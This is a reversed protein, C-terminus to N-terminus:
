WGPRQSQSQSSPQYRQYGRDQSPAPAEQLARLQDRWSLAPPHSRPSAFTELAAARPDIDHKLLSHVHDDDRTVRPERPPPANRQKNRRWTDEFSQTERQPVGQRPPPAYEPYLQAALHAQTAELAEARRMARLTPAQGYSSSTTSALPATREDGEEEEKPAATAHGEGSGTILEWLHDQTNRVPGSPAGRKSPHYVPANDDLDVAHHLHDKLAPGPNHRRKMDYRNVGGGGGGDVDEGTLINYGTSRKSPSSRKRGGLLLGDERRGESDLRAGPEQQQSEMLAGVHDVPRVARRRAAASAVAEEELDGPDGVLGTRVRPDLAQGNPRPAQSIIDRSYLSHNALRRTTMKRVPPIFAARNDEVNSIINYGHGGKGGSGAM